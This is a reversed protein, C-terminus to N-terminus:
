IPLQANDYEYICDQKFIYEFIEELDNFILEINKLM